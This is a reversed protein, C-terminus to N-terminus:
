GGAKGAGPAVELMRLERARSVWRAATSAKLDFAEAIMQTPKRGVANALRYLLAVRTLNERTPGERAQEKTPWYPEFHAFTTVALEIMRAMPVSRLLEGTVESEDRYLHMEFCKYHGDVLRVGLEIRSFGNWDRAELVASGPVVLDPALEPALQVMGGVKTQKFTLSVDEIDQV